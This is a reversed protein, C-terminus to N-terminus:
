DCGGSWDGGGELKSCGDNVPDFCGRRDLTMEFVVDDSVSNNSPFEVVSFLADVFLNRNLHSLKGWDTTEENRLSLSSSSKTSTVNAQLELCNVACLTTSEAHLGYKLLSRLTLNSLENGKLM